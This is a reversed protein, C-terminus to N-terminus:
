GNCYDVNLGIWELQRVDAIKAPVRHGSCERFQTPAMVEHTSASGSCYPARTFARVNAMGYDGRSRDATSTSPSVEPTRDTYGHVGGFREVLQCARWSQAVSKRSNVSFSSTTPEASVASISPM